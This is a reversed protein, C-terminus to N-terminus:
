VDRARVSHTQGGDHVLQQGTQNPSDECFSPNFSACPSSAPGLPFSAPVSPRLSVSVGPEVYPFGRLFVCITKQHRGRGRGFLAIVLKTRAWLQRTRTESSLSINHPDPSYDFKAPRHTTRVNRRVALSCGVQCVGKAVTHGADGDVFRSM